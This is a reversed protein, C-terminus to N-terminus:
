SKSTPLRRNVKVTCLEQDGRKVPSPQLFSVPDSAPFSEDVAEDLQREVQQVLKTPRSRRPKMGMVETSHSPTLAADM